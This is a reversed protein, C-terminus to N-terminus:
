RRRRGGGVLGPAEPDVPPRSGFANLPGSVVAANIPVFIVKDDATIRVASPVTGWEDGRWEEFWDFLQSQDDFGYYEFRVSKINKIIELPKGPPIDAMQQFSGIGSFRTEMAGLYHDGWEDQALGYRVVTLGPNELLRLPALTVFTMSEPGGSFLPFQSMMFTSESLANLQEEQSPLFAATPRLPYLSGVQHRILDELVRERAREDLREQSKEYSNLAVRFSSYMAGGMMGLITLAVMFEIITFGRHRLSVLSKM